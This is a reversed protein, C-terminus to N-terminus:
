RGHTSYEQDLEYKLEKIKKKLKRNEDSLKIIMNRMIDKPLKDVDSEYGKDLM